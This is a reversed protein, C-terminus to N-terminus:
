LEEHRKSLVKGSRDLRVITRRHRRTFEAVVTAGGAEFTVPPEHHSDYDGEENPDRPLKFDFFPKPRDTADFTFVTDRDVDRVFLTGDPALAPGHFRRYRIVDLEVTVLYLADSGIVYRNGRPAHLLVPTTGLQKDILKRGHKSLAWLAYYCADGCATVPAFVAFAGDAARSLREATIVNGNPVVGRRGAVEIEASVSGLGTGAGADDERFEVVQGDRLTIGTRRRGGDGRLPIRVGPPHVFVIAERAGLAAGLARLHAPAPGDAEHAARARDSLGVALALIVLGTKM